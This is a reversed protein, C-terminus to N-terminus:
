NVLLDLVDEVLKSDRFRGIRAAYSIVHAVFSQEHVSHFLHAMPGTAHVTIDAGGHTNEDTLIAAQQVYDFARTDERTPDRRHVMGSEDVMMQFSAPGGTGYTLSTYPIQDIKSNQAAGLIDSGRSAYGNISLTHSHDAAVIILTEDLQDRDISTTQLPNSSRSISM